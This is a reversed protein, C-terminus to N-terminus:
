RASPNFKVVRTVQDCKIEPNRDGQRKMHLKGIKFCDRNKALCGKQALILSLLVGGSIGALSATSRPQPAYRNLSNYCLGKVAQTRGRHLRHAKQHTDRLPCTQGTSQANGGSIPLSAPFRLGVAEFQKRM